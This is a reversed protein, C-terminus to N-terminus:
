CAFGVAGMGASWIPSAELTTVRSSRRWGQFRTTRFPRAKGSSRSGGDGWRKRWQATTGSGAFCDLVIDGPDSAIHIIRQLLREPKPTAFPEREPLLKRLHDRKAEQNSGVETAPWWTRAVVGQQVDKLYRKIVPLSNGDRGFWVRKEERATEFTAESFRWYTGSPPRVTRGSPLTIPYRNKESGSKATGNDGQRWPGNPDSDPNQYRALQDETRPLLNRAKAWVKHDRAYILIYDHASSIDTDNRSGQAKEWVITAVFNNRGFIEDLVAKCYAMEADDLHVWVSGDPALLKHVQVLRDRMMTLWVSHELADDYQVFAQGTNFPPDLYALRIGGEYEEAFERLESLSTLANLADGRIVLNDRARNKDSRVAGVTAANDLLRVEAVRYDSPPVWEYSGDEHALLRLDKNTWTLELRGSPAGAESMRDLSFSLWSRRGM